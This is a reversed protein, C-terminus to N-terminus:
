LQDTSPPHIVVVAVDLVAPVRGAIGATGARGGRAAGRQHASAPPTPAARLRSITVASQTLL